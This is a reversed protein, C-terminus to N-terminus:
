PLQEMRIATPLDGPINLLIPDRDNGTGTYKVLGDMTCDETHYGPVTATPTLGGILSIIVDRDNGSGTYSLKNDVRANGAWLVRKSAVAKRADTGYTATAPATFDVMTAASGLSVATATMCGLHNRHRVAVYYSGPAVDFSVSSTGDTDVIDGDRQLLAQRTCVLTSPSNAARLELRVWDVVANAGTVALVAPACTEGGGGGFQAYGLATYPETAPVLSAARLGDNMLPGSAYAGDLLVKAGILVAQQGAIMIRYDETEGYAYAFCPDTPGPEASLHYVGRIRMVTAGPAVGAPVTFHIDQTEGSVSTAFEGLKESAGLIGDRDYDIWAAYHDQAYNGGTISLDYATGPVLMASLATYDMYAPGTISGTATNNISGLVVGDIFDGDAPGNASTPVCLPANGNFITFNQDSIDYFIHGISRVMVRATTTAQAPLTVTQSGDNPVATALTYPWTLGGDTSLLIDVQSCNIPSGTTGAVSWTVTQVSNVPWNLATNPQTVAFPGTAGNVTIALQDQANCGGGAANDRVTVTFNYTRAVNALVEWTNPSPGDTRPFWRSPSLNPLWPRFNPGNTSAPVPPQTSPQSDMQEWSYTPVNGPDPDSATATLVFPTGKPITWSAGASVTPPHNVMAVTQPCSSSNGSTINAHIEQLSYGGFMAISHNDVNPACVGAYGMITIGSGVEVAASGARNCDNNQSHNAGYQHGMEHAVFDIDFPDGVPASLGTVGGAKFGTCPSSLYAVGGGGTSFVHGIDYNASGILADCKAQNEGLMTGGDNNTYGDSSPNTFVLQDNNAVLVMTLAADREYIGNVRNLTTAMAAIAPAKNTGTAGFFNAYEGTCALALRYTRFQCDGAREGGAQAILQATHEVAHPVNNVEEYTCTSNFETGPALDSKWYAQHEVANQRAVPDIFADGNPLGTIMAHFGAPTLDFKVKVAPEDRAVGSYTRVEPYRAGLAQAMLPTELFRFGLLQGNPLPLYVTNSAERLGQVTGAPAQALVNRMAALDLAYGRAKGPVIFRGEIREPKLQEPQWYSGSQGSVTTGLAFTAASAFILPLLRM